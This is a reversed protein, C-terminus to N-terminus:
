PTKCDQPHRTPPYPITLTTPLCLSHPLVKCCLIYCIHCGWRGWGHCKELSTMFMATLLWPVPHTESEMNAKSTKQWAKVNSLSHLSITEISNSDLFTKPHRPLLNNISNITYYCHKWSQKSTWQPVDKGKRANWGKSTPLCKYSITTAAPAFFVRLLGPSSLLILLLKFIGSKSTFSLSHIGKVNHYVFM